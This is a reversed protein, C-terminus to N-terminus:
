KFDSTKLGSNVKIETVTMKIKQGGADIETLHPYLVGNIEKYNSVTNSTVMPGQPGDVTNESRLKLGSEVSYYETEEEKNPDIVVMAYAKEGNVSVIKELRLTYSGDLYNLEKNFAAQAKLAELEEGELDKSGQMGSTFGKKGDFVQKQLTGMGPAVMEMFFLNPRKQKMSVALTMPMGQVEGEMQTSLDKVKKLNEKGGIATIYNNIVMEATVGAPIPLSPEDTVLGETDYYTVKGFKKLSESVDSAKGVIVLHTNSPAIYKKAAAVIDEATVAQVKQIYTEYYDLPLGYREINLAFRAITSASELQRGFSGAIYNKAGNIEAESPATTSIIKMENFFEMVASDTVENRVSASADFYGVLKDDDYSSYAGYTFGKDERINLYLRGLSGGGYIQNALQLNFIDPNGPKLDFTHGIHIISQVASEKNVFSVELGSPQAPMEYEHKVPEKREWNSFYKNVMKKAKGAKINGVIAIYTQNPMWYTNYYNKCDELTVKEVSAVTSMEGYPHDLGYIRASFASSAISAPDDKNSEIGSIAQKRLKEFNEEPFAPNMAVDAMMAILKESYKSLGSAFISTSSTNLSAGIFDVEEDLVEKARNTTGERLMQGALQVYGANEGEFMPDRDVILSMSVRPLKNNEVVILKIGNDLEIVKYKGFNLDSAPGPEPRASRDLQASVNLGVFLIMLLSVIKKM